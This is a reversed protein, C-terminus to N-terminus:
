RIIETRPQGAAIAVTATKNNGDPCRLEVRYTGAAIKQDTIPPFGLDRGAVVVTCTELPTRITLRGPEPVTYSVRGSPSDARFPMDLLYQSARLRLTTPGPLALSHRAAARSLVRTGELVEFPYSGSLTVNMGETVPQMKVLVVGSRVQTEAARVDTTKFGKKSVKVKEASLDAVAVDVPTVLGTDSGDITVSAGEPDTVLKVIGPAAAAAAAGRGAAAPVAGAQEAGPQAPASSRQVLVIAGLVAAVAVAAV